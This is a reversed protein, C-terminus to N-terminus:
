SQFGDTAAHAQQPLAAFIGLQVDAAPAAVFRPQARGVCPLARHEVAIQGIGVHERQGLAAVHRHVGDVSRTLSFVPSSGNSTNSCAM